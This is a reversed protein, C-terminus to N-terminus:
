LATGAFTSYLLKLKGRALDTLRVRQVRKDVPCAERTILKHVELYTIWRTATTLPTNTWRALDAAAPADDALYLALLMDWAPENFMSAPFIRSRAKRVEFMAEAIRRGCDGSQTEDEAGGSLALLVRKLAAADTPGLELFVAPNSEPWRGSEEPPCDERDNDCCPKAATGRPQPAAPSSEAGDETLDHRL